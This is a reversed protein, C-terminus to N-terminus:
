SRFEKANDMRLTKIPCNPYHTRFKLLMALVKAFAINRTSLLSVESHVGAADVLVLFYHFPGSAPTIPGYIDGQLRQLKPPLETPLKWRSPRQIVKGQSCADCAGVKNADSTCVEHGTLLPLMRRFMTTGPHGMRGHWLSTNAPFTMTFAFGAPQVFKLGNLLSLNSIEMEYLGGAGCVATALCNQGQWLELTEEGNRLM